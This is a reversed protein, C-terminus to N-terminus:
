CGALEGGALYAWDYRLVTPVQDLNLSRRPAVMAAMQWIAFSAQYNFGGLSVRGQRTARLSELQQESVLFPHSM